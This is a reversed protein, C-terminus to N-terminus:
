KMGDTFYDFMSHPENEKYERGRQYRCNNNEKLEEFTVPEFGNIDEGANLAHPQYKKIHGYVEPDKTDHIHWPYPIVIEAAYVQKWSVGDVSLSM